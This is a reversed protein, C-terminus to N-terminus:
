EMEESSHPCGVEWLGNLKRGTQRNHWEVGLFPSDIPDGSNGVKDYQRAVTVSGPPGESANTTLKEPTAKRTAFWTPM